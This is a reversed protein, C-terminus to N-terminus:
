RRSLYGRHEPAAIAIIAEARALQSLGKLRAVGHETVIIDALEAPISPTALKPVIRSAGGGTSQLAIISLGGRSAAAGRMYDPAGGVSSIRRGARWELNLAGDLDVELASGISVFGDIASLAAHDHTVLASRFLFGSQPLWKYFAEDGWAVGTMNEASPDIVGADCLQRYEPGIIGSHVRLGRHLRLASMVAAPTDGIGSQITAGDPVLEAVLRSIEALAPNSRAIAPKASLLPANIEVVLDLADAPISEADELAPMQSNVFAVKRRAKPWVLPGMDCAVGFSCNGARDPPATHLVAVDFETAAMLAAIESYPMPTVRTRGTAISPELATSAMFTRLTVDGPLAGYDLQNIGPILCSWLEVGNALGPNDRLLNYFTECEGPGGQFYVRQGPRMGRLVDEPYGIRM